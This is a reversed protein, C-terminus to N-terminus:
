KKFLKYASYALLVVAIAFLIAVLLHDDLFDQIHKLIGAPMREALNEGLAAASKTISM